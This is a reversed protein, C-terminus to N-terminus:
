FYNRLSSQSPKFKLNEPDVGMKELWKDYESSHDQKIHTDLFFSGSISRNAKGFSANLEDPFIGEKRGDKRFLKMCFECKVIDDENKLEEYHQSRMHGLKHDHRTYRKPCFRCPYCKINHIQHMHKSFKDRNSFSVNCKVCFKDQISHPKLRFKTKNDVETCYLSDFEEETFETSDFSDQFNTLNLTENVANQLSEPLAAVLSDTASSSPPFDLNKIDFVKTDGVKSTSITSVTNSNLLTRRKKSDPETFLPSSNNDDETKNIKSTITKQNEPTVSGSGQLNFENRINSFLNSLTSELDLSTQNQNTDNNLSFSDTESSQTEHNKDLIKGSSLKETKTTSLNKITSTTSSAELDSLNELKFTESNKSVLHNLIKLGNPDYNFNYLFDNGETYKLMHNLLNIVFYRPLIKILKGSLWDEVTPPLNHKLVGHNIVETICSNLFNNFIPPSAM